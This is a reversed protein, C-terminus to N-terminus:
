DNKKGGFEYNYGKCLLPATGYLDVVECKEKVMDLKDAKCSAYAYYLGISDESLEKRVEKNLKTYFQWHREIEEMNYKEYYKQANKDQSWFEMRNIKREQLWGKTHEIMKKAIGKGRHEELVGFEWVFGCCSDEKLGLQGPEVEIETFMFGVIRGNLRAVLELYEGSYEPRKHHLAVWAMSNTAIEAWTKLWQDSEGKQLTDIYVEGFEISDDIKEIKEGWTESFTIDSIKKRETKGEEAKYGLTILFFCRIDEPLGLIESAKHIDLYGIWCTDLGEAKAALQIHAGPILTTSNSYLLGRAYDNPADYLWSVNEKGWRLENVKRAFESEEKSSQVKACCAIVVPATSIWMQEGAAKALHNRKEEDKVIGFYWGQGNGGSPAWRAAELIRLLKDNEVLKDKYKRVARRERIVDYLYKEM